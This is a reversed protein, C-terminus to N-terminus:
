AVVTGSVANPLMLMVLEPTVVTPFPKIYMLEAKVEVLPLIFKVAVDVLAEAVLLGPTLLTEAPLNVALAPVMVMLLLEFALEATTSAPATEALRMAMVPVAVVAGVTTEKPAIVITAPPESIETVPLLLVAPVLVPMVCVPAIAFLALPPFILKIDFLMM